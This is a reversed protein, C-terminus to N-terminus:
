VVDRDVVVERERQSVPRGNVLSERDTEVVTRRGFAGSLLSVAALVLGVVFVIIGVQHIDVGEVDASVAWALIAGVAVLVASFGLGTTRM